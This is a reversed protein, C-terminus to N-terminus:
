AAVKQMYSTIVVQKAYRGIERLATVRQRLKKAKKSREQYHKIMIALEKDFFADVIQTRLLRVRRARRVERQILIVRMRWDLFRKQMYFSDAETRLFSRLLAASVQQARPRVARQRFTLCGRVWHRLREGRTAGKRLLYSGVGRCIRGHKM